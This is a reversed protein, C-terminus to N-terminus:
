RNDARWSTM